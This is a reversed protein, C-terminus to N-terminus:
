HKSTPGISKRASQTIPCPTPQMKPGSETTKPPPATSTNASPGTPTKNPSPPAIKLLHFRQGDVNVLYLNDNEYTFQTTCMSDTLTNEAKATPWTHKTTPFSQTKPHQARAFPIYKKLQDIDKASVLSASLAAFLILALLKQLVTPKREHSGYHDAFKTGITPTAQPLSKRNQPLVFQKTKPVPSRM